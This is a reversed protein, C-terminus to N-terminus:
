EKDQSRQRELHRRRVDKSAEDAATMPATPEECLPLEDAEEDNYESM